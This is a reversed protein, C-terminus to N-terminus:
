RCHSRSVAGMVFHTQKEEGKSQASTHSVQFMQLMINLIQHFPHGKVKLALDSFANHGRGQERSYEDKFGAAAM